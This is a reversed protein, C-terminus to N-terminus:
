KLVLFQSVYLNLRGGLAVSAPIPSSGLRDPEAPQAGGDRKGRDWLGWKQEEFKIQGKDMSKSIWVGMNNLSNKDM